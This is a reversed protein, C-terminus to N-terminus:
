RETPEFVLEVPTSEGERLVVPVRQRRGGLLRADLVYEGAPLVQTRGEAGLSPWALHTGAASSWLWEETVEVREPVRGPALLWTEVDDTWHSTHESEYWPQRALFALLDAREISGRLALDLTAGRDLVVTLRRREGGALTVVQEWAGHAAPELLTGHHTEVWPRGRVVVRYTGAPVSLPFPECPGEREDLVRSSLVAGTTPDEIRALHVPPWPGEDCPLALEVTAEGPGAGVELVVSEGALSAGDPLRLPRWAVDPGYLGVVVPGSPLEFAFRDRATPIGALLPELSPRHLFAEPQPSVVLTHRASHPGISWHRAGLADVPLHWSGGDPQRLVFTTRTAAVEPMRLTLPTGDARVPTPTLLRSFGQARWAEEEDRLRVTYAGPHLGGAEFRGDRDIAVLAWPRGAGRLDLERERARNGAIRGDGRDLSAEQVLLWANPEAPRGAADLLMGRVVGEGLLTLALEGIPVRPDLDRLVANGAPGEVIRELPGPETESWVLVGPETSRGLAVGPGTSPRVSAQVPNGAADVVRARLRVGEAPEQGDRRGALILPVLLGALLRARRPFRHLM